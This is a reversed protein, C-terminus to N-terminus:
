IVRLTGRYGDFTRRQLRQLTTFMEKRLQRARGGDYIYPQTPTGGDTLACGTQLESEGIDFGVPTPDDPM